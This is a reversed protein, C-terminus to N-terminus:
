GRMSIDILHSLTHQAYLGMLAEELCSRNGPGRRALVVLPYLANRLTAERNM